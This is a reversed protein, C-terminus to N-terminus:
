SASNVRPSPGIDFAPRPSGEASLDQRAWYSDVIRRVMASMSRDEEKAEAELRDFMANTMPVTLSAEMRRM